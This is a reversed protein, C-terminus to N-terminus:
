AGAGEISVEAFAAGLQDNGEVASPIWASADPITDDIVLDLSM